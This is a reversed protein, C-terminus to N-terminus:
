RSILKRILAGREDRHVTVRGCEVHAIRVVGTRRSDDAGCAHDSLHWEQWRRSSENCSFRELYGVQSDRLLSETLGNLQQLHIRGHQRRPTPKTVEDFTVKLSSMLPMMPRPKGRREVIELVTAFPLHQLDQMSRNELTAPLSAM